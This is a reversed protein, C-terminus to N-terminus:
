KLKLNSITTSGQSSPSQGARSRAKVEFLSVSVGVVDTSVSLVGLMVLWALLFSVPSVKFTIGAELSSVTAMAVLRDVLATGSATAMAVVSFCDAGIKTEKSFSPRSPEVSIISAALMLGDMPQYM